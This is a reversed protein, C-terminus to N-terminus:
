WKEPASSPGARAPRRDPQRELKSGAWVDRLLVVGVIAIGLVITASTVATVQLAQTFAERSADLLEVALADPLGDAAAVAGGLTDHAAEAAESPVGARSVGALEGRYVAAGISGLIAM